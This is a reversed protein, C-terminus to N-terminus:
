PVVGNVINPLPKGRVSAAVIHAVTERLRRTASVSASAIHATVLANDMELLPSAPPIPEPDCVDLAAFGLSGSGLADILADTDILDGRAVNVLIAGPKMRGIADRDIMGRTQPTSPCHLTLLDSMRLLRALDVADGGAAKIEAAPAFPDHVLLACGFGSLRKVVARGIRGFGVVGVTMEVLTKMSERPVALRWEGRRVVGGNAIVQRTACLMLSLTHDAVEDVCYDPVNCVPIHRRCAAELDVNDVGIGYRVIVRARQMADIAEATVPAFQTIVHYADAVLDIVEAPTTCQAGVVECGLPELIGAEVDLSAFRYDTVVVKTM